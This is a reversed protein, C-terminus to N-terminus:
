NENVKHKLCGATAKKESAVGYKRGELEAQSPRCISHGGASDGERHMCIMLERQPSPQVIWGGEDEINGRILRCTLTVPDHLASSFTM